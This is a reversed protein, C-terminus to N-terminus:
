ALQFRETLIRLESALTALEEVTKATEGMTAV